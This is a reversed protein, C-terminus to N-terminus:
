DLTAVPDSLRLEVETGDGLSQFSWRQYRNRVSFRDTELVDALAQEDLLQREFAEFALTVYRVPFPSPRRRDVPARSPQDKEPDPRYRKAVLKEYTGAPLLELEELRDTMRRFTVDYIHALWLIDAVRFRGGNARGRDGFQKSVSASPLLFSKAFSSAFADEDTLQHWGAAPLVNGADRDRLFCGVEHALSWRRRGRQHRRNVGICPGLDETWIMLGAVSEPLDDLYFIRMGGEVELRDALNAAPGNGIGLANRVTAAAHVAALTPDLGPRDPHARYTELAELPTVPRAIGLRHELDVFREALSQLREVAARAARLGVERALRFRPMPRRSDPDPLDDPGLGLAQRIRDVEAEDLDAEGREAAALRGREVSAADALRDRGWRRDQRLAAIRAGLDNQDM